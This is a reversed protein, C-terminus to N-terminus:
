RLLKNRLTNFEELTILNSEKLSNLKLLEDAVGESGVFIYRMQSLGCQVDRRCSDSSLDM